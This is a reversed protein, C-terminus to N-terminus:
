GHTVIHAPTGTGGGARGAVVPPHRGLVYSVAHRAGPRAAGVKIDAPHVGAAIHHRAAVEAVRRYAAETKPHLLQGPVGLAISLDTPGVLLVDVGPVAAIEELNLCRQSEVQPMLMTEANSWAITDPVSAGSYDTM